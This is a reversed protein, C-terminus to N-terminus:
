AGEDNGAADEEDPGRGDNRLEKVFHYGDGATAPEVPREPEYLRERADLATRHLSDALHPPPKRRDDMPNLPTFQVDSKSIADALHRGVQDSNRRFSKADPFKMNIVHIREDPEIAPTTEREILFSFRYESAAPLLPCVVHWGKVGLNTLDERVEIINKSNVVGYEFTRM